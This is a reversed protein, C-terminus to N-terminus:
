LLVPQHRGKEGGALLATCDLGATRVTQLIPARLQHGLPASQTIGQRHRVFHGSSLQLLFQLGTVFIISTIIIFMSIGTLQITKCM